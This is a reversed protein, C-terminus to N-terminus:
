KDRWLNKKNVYFDIDDDGEIVGGDRELGLMTGFFVFYEIGELIKCFYSLNEQNTELSVAKKHM